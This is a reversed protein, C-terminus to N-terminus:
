PQAFEGGARKLGVAVVQVRELAVRGVRALAAPRDLIRGGVVHRRRHDGGRQVRAKARAAVAVEGVAHERRQAVLEAPV